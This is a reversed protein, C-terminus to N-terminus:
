IRRSSMMSSLFRGIRRDQVSMPIVRECLDFASSRDSCLLRWRLAEDM